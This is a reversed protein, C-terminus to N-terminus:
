IFINGKYIGDACRAKHRGGEEVKEDSVDNERQVKENNLHAQASGSDINSKSFTSLQSHQFNLIAKIKNQQWDTAVKKAFARKPPKETQQGTQSSM